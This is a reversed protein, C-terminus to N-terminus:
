PGVGVCLQNVALFRKYYKTMDVLVLNQEAIENQLMNKIREKELKVDSDMVEEETEPPIPNKRIKLVNPIYLLRYEKLFLFIFCVVGILGLFLLNRGSGPAEWAFYNNSECCDPIFECLKEVTCGSVGECRVKCFQHTQTIINFNSITQTMSFHPFILFIWNLPNAVHELEFLPQQM